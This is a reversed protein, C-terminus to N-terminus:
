RGVLTAVGGFNGAASVNRGVSNSTIEWVRTMNGSIDEVDRM